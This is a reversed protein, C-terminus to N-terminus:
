LQGSLFQEALADADDDDQDSGSSAAALAHARMEVDGIATIRIGFNEGLKVAVGMGIQKNNVLLDLEDDAPKPLELIAGPVLGMVEAVTMERDGLLVIIPVELELIASIDAPM